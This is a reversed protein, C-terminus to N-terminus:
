DVNKSIQDSIKQKEASELVEVWALTIQKPFKEEIITSKEILPNGSKDDIVIVYEQIPPLFNGISHRQRMFITVMFGKIILDHVGLMAWDYSTTFRLNDEHVPGTDGGDYFVLGAKSKTKLWKLVSVARIESKDAM